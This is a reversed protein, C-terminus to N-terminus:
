FRYSIGLAGLASVSPTQGVVQDPSGTFFRRRVLPVTVGAELELTYRLGLSAAARLRGGASWWSRLSSDPHDVSRDTADLWGGLGVVCPQMRWVGGLSWGTPCATLAFTTLRVVVGSAPPLFDNRAHFLGLDLTPRAADNTRKTLRVFVEGGLSVYPSVVQSTSARAGLEFALPTSPASLARPAVPAPKEAPTPGRDFALAATLSLAEVVQDCTPGDVRRVTEGQADLLRLEGEIKGPAPALHVIIRRANEGEAALRVADTRARIGQYFAEVRSCGEPADFEIRIPTAKSPATAAVGVVIWASLPGSM